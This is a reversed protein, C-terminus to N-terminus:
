SSTKLKVNSDRMKEQKQILKKEMYEKLFEYEGGANIYIAMATKIVDTMEELFTENPKSSKLGIDYLLCESAEGIEENLKLMLDSTSYDKNREGYVEIIKDFLEKFKM